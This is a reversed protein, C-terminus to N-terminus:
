QTRKPRDIVSAPEPPDEDRVPVTRGDNQLLAAAVDGKPSNKPSLTALRGLVKAAADAPPGLVEYAIRRQGPATGYAKFHLGDETQRTLEIRTILGQALANEVLHSM